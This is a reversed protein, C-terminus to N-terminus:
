AAQPALQRSLKQLNHGLAGLLTQLGTKLVGHWRGQRIGWRVLHAIIRETAPRILAYARGAETHSYQRLHRVLDDHPGVSVARGKGSPNCTDQFPCGTCQKATFQATGDKRVTRTQGAPCTITQTTPDFVFQDKHCPGSAQPPTLLATDHALATQRAEGTGYAQDGEVVPPAVQDLLAEVAAADHTSAPTVAVADIMGSQPEVLVHAKYGNFRKSSSKRGHRMEPDVVSCQRDPAVGQRLRAQGAADLTVDQGILRQLQALAERVAPEDLAQCVTALVAADHVYDGLLATRATADTWDLEPKTRDTTYETRTLHTLLDAHATSAAQGHADVLQRIAQFLLRYTDQVAAAGLIATSDIGRATDPDLLKLAIAAERVAAFIRVAPTSALQVGEAQLAAIRERDITGFLLRLRHYVLTTPHLDTEEATVDCMYQWRLDYALDEVAQRDSRGFRLELLLLRTLRSPSTAPRGNGAVYLDDFLTDPLLQDCVTRFRVEFSQPALPRRMLTVEPSM